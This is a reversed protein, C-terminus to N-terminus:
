VSQRPPSLKKRKMRSVTVPMKKINKTYKSQSEFDEYPAHRSYIEALREVEADGYYRYGSEAVEGPHLLGVRDYHRLARVSVGSLRSLSGISLRM